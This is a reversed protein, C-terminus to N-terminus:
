ISLIFKKMYEYEPTFKGRYLIIARKIPFPLDCEEFRTSYDARALAPIFPLLANSFFISSELSLEAPLNDTAMVAVGQGKIGELAKDEIPDYIYVPNGPNTPRVTCEIAGEVDCSIDGIVKLHPPTEKQWLQRLSKKSVFHPYRPTWYICNVLISLNPLYSKFISEYKEPHNYYDQLNFETSRSLPKVMHEEKFVVKYVKHSSYNGERMFSDLKTPAIEEVPLLDLIEQAGQSVRGYGAFGCILPILAPSIGSDRIKWGVKKLSEKAEVLSGYQHALRIPEFPNELGEHKARQGFVCLTDIMGAQGAQTGFFVLRQGKKDVVREYDILTNGLEKMRKLMPMNNPQGKITHSFFMYSKERQFFDIPIEKVGVVLSCPSLDETIKVGERAYEQDAFVRIDSPQMWIEVDHNQIIERVQSPILPVRREWRNKDERRIGIRAKMSYERLFSGLNHCLNAVGDICRPTVGPVTRGM